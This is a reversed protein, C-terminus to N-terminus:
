AGEAQLAVEETVKGRYIYMVEGSEPVLKRTIVQMQMLVKEVAELTFADVDRYYRRLVESRSVQGKQQILSLIDQTAQAFKAKGLGHFVTGMRKEAAQLTALARKFVGATIIPENSESAAYAMAIKKIHTARRSCYGAFTPDLIAPNGAASKRDEAVYWEEYLRLGESDFEVGGALTKIQELDYLQSDRLKENSVYLNPNSITQRKREEAVFVTRSTWGGGIAEQPLISPIWDPATSALLNFCVGLIKDTGGGKTQYTWDSRSDYWNTLWALFEVNKAGLFVSLEEATGSVACQFVLRGTTPDKLNEVSNKMFVTMAEKTLKDALLPVGIAGLFDRAVGLPPGKRVGSPGVLCIYQNPYIEDLGWKM